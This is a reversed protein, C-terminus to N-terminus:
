RDSFRGEFEERCRRRGVEPLRAVAEMETETECPGTVGHRPGPVSGRRRAIRPGALWAEIMVLGVARALRDPVAICAGGLPEAKARDRDRRPVRCEAVRFRVSRTFTGTSQISRRPRHPAFDRRVRREERLASRPRSGAWSRWYGDARERFPYLRAPHRTPHHRSVSGRRAPGSHM